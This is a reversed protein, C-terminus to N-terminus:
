RIERLSVLPYLHKFIAKRLPWDRSDAAKSRPKVDEAIVESSTQYSFNLTVGAIHGNSLKVNEGNIVFPYFPQRTLHTIEGARELLALQSCRMKEKKSDHLIGCECQTKKAIGHKTKATDQWPSWTM